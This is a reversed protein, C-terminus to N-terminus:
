VYEVAAHSENCPRGKIAPGLMIAAIKSSSVLGADQVTGDLFCGLALPWVLQKCAISTYKARQRPILRKVIATNVTINVPEMGSVVLMASGTDVSSESGLAGYAKGVRITM